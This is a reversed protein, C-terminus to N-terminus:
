AAGAIPGNRQAAWRHFFLDTIALASLRVLRIFPRPANLIRRPMLFPRSGGHKLKFFPDYRYSGELYLRRAPGRVALSPLM